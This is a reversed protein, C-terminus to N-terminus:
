FIIPTYLSFPSNTGPLDGVTDLLYSPKKKKKIKIIWKQNHQTKQSKDQQLSHLSSERQPVHSEWQLPEEQQLVHARPCMPKLLEPMHAWYNHSGPEPACAWYNYHM